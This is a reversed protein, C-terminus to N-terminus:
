AINKRRVPDAVEDLGDLMLLSDGGLQDGVGPFHTLWAPDHEDVPYDATCRHTRIFEALTAARILIPFPCPRPLLNAADLADQGLHAKCAAFAIRRLFTSKGAGPDGVLVVRPQTLAEQLPVPKREEAKETSAIVTTLPTYLKDIAFRYVSENGVKLGRIDIYACEERLATLYPTADQGSSPQRDWNYVATAIKTALNDPNTFGMSLIEDKCEALRKRFADQADLKWEPERLNAPVAFDDPALYLLRPVKADVAAQYERQTFSTESDEPGEGFRHGIVGIFLNCSRVQERCFTDVDWDRAGFDEMRVVKWDDLKQLAAYAAERYGKLDAGTSSLFVRRVRM